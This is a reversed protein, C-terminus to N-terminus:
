ILVIGLMASSNVLLSVKRAPGHINRIPRCIYINVTLDLFDVKENSVTYTFKLSNDVTQLTQIFQLLQEESGTYVMIIDDIFRRWRLINRDNRIIDNKEILQAVYINALEVSANSGM